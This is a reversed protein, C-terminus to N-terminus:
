EYIMVEYYIVRHDYGPYDGEDEEEEGGEESNGLPLLGGPLGSSAFHNLKLGSVEM